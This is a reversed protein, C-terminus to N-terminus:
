RQKWQEPDRRLHMISVIIITDDVVKFLVGFPFTRTLCRRVDATLLPYLIPNIQVRTFADQVAALFRSRLLKQQSGYFAAAQLMESQAEPIIVLRRM